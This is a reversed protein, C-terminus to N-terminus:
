YQDKKSRVYHIDPHYKLSFFQNSLALAIHTFFAIWITGTELTLICLVLGLPISGVSEKLGKPVHVLVYLSINLAIAPWTGMTEVFPFLLLGRFLFEYGLLYIIWGVSSIFVTKLTWEPIRIQPYMKLSDPKRAAYANMLVIFVSLGLIWYLSTRVNTLSLGYDTLNRGTATIIVIGPILGLFVFGIIKQFFIWYILTKAEGLKRIFAKRIRDSHSSFHYIVFGATLLFLILVIEGHEKELRLEM